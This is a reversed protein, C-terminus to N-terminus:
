KMAELDGPGDRATWDILADLAPKAASANPHNVIGV